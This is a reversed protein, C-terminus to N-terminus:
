DLALVGLATLRPLEERMEVLGLDMLAALDNDSVPSLKTRKARIDRMIWRFRIATNLDLEVLLSKAQQARIVVSELDTSSAVAVAKVAPEVNGPQGSLLPRSPEKEFISPWPKSYTSRPPPREALLSTVQRLQANDSDTPHAVAATKVAPEANDPPGSLTPRSPKEDVVPQSPNATTPIPLPLETLRSKAPQTGTEASEAETLPAAAVTIAASGVSDPQGSLAPRSPEEGFIPLPPKTNPSILPPPEALLSKAQQATIVATEVETPRAVVVTKLTPDVNNLQGFLTPRSPEREHNPYSPEPNILTLFPPRALLSSARQPPMMAREVDPPPAFPVTSVTPEVSDLRGFFHARSHENEFVHLPTKTNTSIPLPPEALLSKVLQIVASEADAPSGVAVTKVASEMYNPQDSPIPPSPKNEFIAASPKANTSILPPEALQPQIATAAAETAPAFAVTRPAPELNHLQGSLISPSFKKEFIVASPKKDTSILPTPEALLSKARQARIVATEADNPSAVAEKESPEVNDLQGSLTPRWTKGELNPYSPETNTSPLQALEWTRETGDIRADIEVVSDAFRSAFIPRSPEISIATPPPERLIEAVAAHDFVSSFQESNTSILHPQSFIEVLAEDVAQIKDTSM